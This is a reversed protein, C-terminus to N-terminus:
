GPFPRIESIVADAFIAAFAFALMKIWQMM